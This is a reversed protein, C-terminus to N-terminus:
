AARREEQPVAYATPIRLIVGGLPVKKMLIKAPNGVVITNAEVPKVVVAGAGVMANEGVYDVKGSVLLSRQGIFSKPGLSVYAGILSLPGCFTYPLLTSNHGIIVNSRLICGEGIEVDHQIECGRGILVGCESVKAFRSIAVSSHILSPILGGAILIRKSVQEKINMDGMTLAFSKNKIGQKFIDEFSGLIPCGHDIEGTRTENYHYLGKVTYGCDEAMEMFIPTAHGVGLLYIEKMRYNAEAPM